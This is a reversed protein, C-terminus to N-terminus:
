ASSVRAGCRNLASLVARISAFEISTDTGAGFRLTGDPRRIQIYAIAGADSGEGLSHEAYFAVEFPPEGARQMADVFAAIPGNGQGTLKLEV